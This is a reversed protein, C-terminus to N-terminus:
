KFVRIAMGIVHNPREIEGYQSFHEILDAERTDLPLGRVFLRRDDVAVGPPIPAAAAASNSNSEHHHDNNEDTPTGDRSNSIDM